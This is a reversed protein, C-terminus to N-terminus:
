PVGFILFINEELYTCINKALARKLKYIFTFKTFWDVVVLLYCNGYKSRPFPGLLDASLLQFPQYVNKPAGMLGIRGLQSSKQEHCVKCHAVYKKIDAKIGPWYYQESVRNFTKSVGFHSALPSDHFQKIIESRQYKPIVLKWLKSNTHINHRSNVFKYLQNKDVHWSAFKSSKKDDKSVM